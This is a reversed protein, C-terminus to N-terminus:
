LLLAWYLAANVCIHACVPPVTSGSELRLWGYISGTAFISAIQPWAMGPKPVHCLAFLAAVAFVVWWGPKRLWHGLLWELAWFLYGRFVIEEVLPGITIAMWVAGVEPEYNKDYGSFLWAVITGALLGLLMAKGLVIPRTPLWNVHEFGHSVLRGQVSWMLWLFAMTLAVGVVHM